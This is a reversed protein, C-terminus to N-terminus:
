WFKVRPLEKNVYIRKKTPVFSRQVMIKKWRAIKM